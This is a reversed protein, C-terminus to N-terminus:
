WRCVPLPLLPQSVRCGVLHKIIHVWGLQLGPIKEEEKEMGAELEKKNKIKGSTIGVGRCLKTEMGDRSQTHMPSSIVVRSMLSVSWSILQPDMIIVIAEHEQDHRCDLM